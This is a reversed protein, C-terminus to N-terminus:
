SVERACFFGHVDANSTAAGAYLTSTGANTKWQLNITHAAASPALIWWSFSMVFPIVNASPSRMGCIGDDGAERVADLTVDLYTNGTSSNFFSGVFTVLIDGGTTTIALSLDTGDIDVFTASTTTYDAAENIEYTDTPPAKIANFNDRVHVNMMTATVLEGTAWNRPTTYAM